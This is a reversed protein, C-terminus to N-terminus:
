NTTIHTLRKSSYCVFHWQSVDTFEDLADLIKLIMETGLPCIMVFQVDKFTHYTPINKM